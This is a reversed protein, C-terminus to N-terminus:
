RRRPVTVIAVNSPATRVHEGFVALVRYGYEGPKRGAVTFSKTAADTSGIETFDGITLRIDDVYWGMRYVNVFQADGLDYVFRLRITQGAFRTLDARRREFAPASSEFPEEQVAMTDRDREDRGLSDVIQWSEGGDNSVEVRGSDNADNAFDSWYSLEASDGRPLTIPAGFTVVSEGDNPGAGPTHSARGVGTYFSTPASHSLNGRNKQSGSDSLQWGDIAANTPASVQWADLSAADDDLHILADRAEEVVYGTVGEAEHQWTLDFMGDADTAPASLMPPEFGIPLVTIPVTMTDRADIGRVTLTAQYVGPKTYVHDLMRGTGSTGDGFDWRFRLASPDVLERSGISAYQYSGAADFSVPKGATAENPLAEFYAVVDGDAVPTGSGVDPQLMGWALLHACMEMGKIWGESMSGDLQGTYRNLTELNDNPTHLIALGDPNGASGDSSPGTIEPGPNLFPIGLVEFNRWDSTFLQPRGTGIIVDNGIDAPTDADAESTAVFIERQEGDVTLTDDLHEFVEEVLQPARENFAEIRATDGPVAAPDAIQIGLDVRDAPNGFRFAPYGGACPDTNWYSRVKNEQGPVINNTAYDLSGLTGSEEGDWPIFKVTAAPRTGTARWYDAMIKAMRIVQAHGEASDWASAPGDNTQDFHGSVLVTEEPHEAGPVVAAVNIARGGLTNGGAGPDEVEFEYEHITVGFDGLVQRMTEGFYEVYELQHNPCVGPMLAPNGPRAIPDSPQACYGHRPDGGNGYPDDASQDDSQRYPLCLVEFVNSDYANWTGSPNFTLLRQDGSIEACGTDAPPLPDGPAFHGIPAYDMLSIDPAVSPPPSAFAPAAAVAAALLALVSLQSIAARRRRM